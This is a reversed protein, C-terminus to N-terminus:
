EGWCSESGLSSCEDVEWDALRAPITDRKTVGLDEALSDLLIPDLTTFMM